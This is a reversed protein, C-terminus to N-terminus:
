RISPQQRPCRRQLSRRERCPPRRRMLRDFRQRQRSCVQRHCRLGFMSAKCTSYAGACAGVGLAFGLGLILLPSPFAPRKLNNKRNSDLAASGSRAGLSPPEKALRDARAALQRSISEKFAEFSATGAHPEGLAQDQSTRDRRFEDRMSADAPEGKRHVMRTAGTVSPNLQADTVPAHLALAFVVLSGNHITAKILCLEARENAQTARNVGLRSYKESKNSRGGPAPVAPVAPVPPSAIATGRAACDDSLPCHNKATGFQVARRRV